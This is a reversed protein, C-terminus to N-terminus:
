RRAAFLDAQSPEPLADELTLLFKKTPLGGGFGTLAGNAGIVRHCPLLIPLPNNGNATGVARSANPDGLAKAITGYTTTVGYPITALYEWVRNQFGSGSLHYALDFQKLEGAFYADLQRRAESFPADHRRWDPRPGFAKHGTPFSIFHLRNGDGAVLLDGVPSEVITYFLGSM